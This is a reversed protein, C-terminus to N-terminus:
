TFNILLIILIFIYLNNFYIVYNLACLIDNFFTEILIYICIYLTFMINVDYIYNRCEYGAFYYFSFSNM